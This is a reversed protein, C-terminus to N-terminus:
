FFDPIYIIETFISKCAAIKKESLFKDLGSLKVSIISKKKKDAFSFELKQIVIM